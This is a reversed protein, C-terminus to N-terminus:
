EMEIPEGIPYANAMEPTIKAPLNKNMDLLTWVSNAVALREGDQTDM